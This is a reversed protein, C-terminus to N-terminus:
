QLREIKKRTIIDEIFKAAEKQELDVLLDLLTNMTFGQVQAFTLITLAPSAGSKELSNSLFSHCGLRQALPKWGSNAELIRGLDTIEDLELWDMEAENDTDMVEEKIKLEIEEDNGEGRATLIDRIEKNNSALDFSSQGDVSDDDNSDTEQKIDGAEDPQNDENLAQASSGRQDNRISPDAGHKTLLQCLQRARAGTDVVAAHLATNGGFNQKNVNVDTKELFYRVVDIHGGEVAIHLATRGYSRESKNVDAGAKVLLDIARLSGSEAAVQLATWGADDHQEIKVNGQILADVCEWNEPKKVAEHLAFCGHSDCANPDAGLLLLARVIDPQNLIVAYHLPTKGSASEVGVLNNLEPYGAILTLIYKAIDRQGYRIASHLPTDGYSTREKLITAVSQDLISKDKMSEVAKKLIDIAFNPGEPSPRNSRPRRPGDTCYQPVWDGQPEVLDMYEELNVNDIYTRFEESDCKEELLKKLEASRESPTLPAVFPKWAFVHNSMVTTSDIGSSLDVNDSYSMRQRKRQLLNSMPKYTFQMPESCDGDTPRELQIYVVKPETIERDKYPPTRFVIAYQHHVDLESFKGYDCWIENDKDDLEFFKVKINKKGVKEVLLFVEENGGCSSTYKDIRCIKLEGTLASKLNNITNSYVPQSKPEMVGYENRVFAQFCLAVSNLDMWKQAAEAEMRIETEERVSLARRNFDKRQIEELKEARMKKMLEDKIHKKATHIIGMGQFSAIWDNEESVELEYPTDSESNGERKVLHHAHPIRRDENKTVLTCRIIMKGIGNLLKVSPVQRKRRSTSSASALSGHTGMMESKYRFRFKEVPQDLIRIEPADMAEATLVGPEGLRLLTSESCSELFDLDEPSSVAMPSAMSSSEPSSMYPRTVPM